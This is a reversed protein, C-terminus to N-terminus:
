PNTDSSGTFDTNRLMTFLLSKPLLESVAKQTSVSKSGAGFTYTKLAVRTM